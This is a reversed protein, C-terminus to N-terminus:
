VLQTALGTDIDVILPISSRRTIQSVVYTLETMTLYGVDPRGLLTASISFGGVAAAPFGAHEAIKASAADYVGPVLM